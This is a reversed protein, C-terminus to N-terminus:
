SKNEHNNLKITREIEIIIVDNMTPKDTGKREAKHFFYLWARTKNDAVHYEGTLINRYVNM